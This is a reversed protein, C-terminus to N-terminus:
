CEAAELATWLTGVAPQAQPQRPCRHGCPGVRRGRPGGGGGEEAPGGELGEQAGARGAAWGM